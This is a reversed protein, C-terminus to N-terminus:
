PDQSVCWNLKWLSRADSVQKGFIPVIKKHQCLVRFDLSVSDPIFSHTSVCNKKKQCFTHPGLVGNKCCPFQLETFFSFWLLPWNRSRSALPSALARLVVRLDINLFSAGPTVNVQSALEGNGTSKIEPSSRQQVCIASCFRMKRHAIGRDILVAKKLAMNLLCLQTTHFHLCQRHAEHMIDFNKSQM